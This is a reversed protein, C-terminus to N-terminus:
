LKIRVLTHVDTRTSKKQHEEAWAKQYVTESVRLYIAFMDNIKYRVNVLFRGGLGYVNPISYAYLVDNEYAYIRNNWQRADFAQIRMQVVIPAIPTQYEIDQFVSLGYSWSETKVINADAQTRFTWCPLHYYFRYRIAYTDKTTQRRARLRWDMHYLSNPQWDTQYLVDYGERFADVYGAFRWHALRKIEAGLYFGNEDNLRSKESFAYAYPNDFDPSYYRYLALLNLDGIPTLQIGVISGVGLQKTQTAAVEGWIDVKGWNYRANVGVVAGGEIAGEKTTAEINKIATVGVKLKNWKGTANVGVVHKWTSDEQQLSYLGSVEIKGFRLTTGLGHFAPYDDGVATFKRVGEKANTGSAIYSSKGTHFPTGIVLGQGFNAQFNGGVMSKVVGIDQVQVYGGYEVKDLAGGTPRGITLGMQVHNQYNFRYRLKGYIPDGEYDEINRADARLTLEHKAYRFVERFYIKEGEKAEGVYVFPLLNRIDYDKLSEILQLEYIDVFPHQYQYTLIDDIQEDSLWVLQSLEEANTQNLNIPHAAIDMLQETMDEMSVGAEAIQGYIDEMIDQLDFTQAMIGMGLLWTIIMLIQRM